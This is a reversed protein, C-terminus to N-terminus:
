VAILRGFTYPICESPNAVCWVHRAIDESREECFSISETARGSVGVFRCSRVTGNSLEVDGSVLRFWESQVPIIPPMIIRSNLVVPRIRTESEIYMAVTCQISENPCPISISVSRMGAKWSVSQRPSNIASGGDRNKAFVTVSLHVDHFYFDDGLDNTITIVANLSTKRGRKECSVKPLKLIRIYHM